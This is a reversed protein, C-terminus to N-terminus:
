CSNTSRVSSSRSMRKTRSHNVSTRPVSLLTETAGASNSDANSSPMAKSPDAISPNARTKSDSMTAIGSGDVKWTKGNSPPADPSLARINQSM